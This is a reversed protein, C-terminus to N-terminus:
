PRTSPSPEPRARTPARAAAPRMVMTISVTALWVLYLPYPLFASLWGGPALPGDDAVLGFVPALQLLAAALSLWGIWAAFARREFVLMAVALSATALPIGAVLFLMDAVAVLAASPAELTLAEQVSLAVLTLANSASGAVLVLGALADERAKRALRDRLGAFFWFAFAAGVAFLLTQIRLEGANRSFHELAAADGGGRAVGREFVLALLGIGVSVLGAAGGQREVSWAM